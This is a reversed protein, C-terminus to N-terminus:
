IEKNTQIGDDSDKLIDKVMEGINSKTNVYSKSIKKRSSLVLEPSVFQIEYTQAGNAIESRLNVKHVFLPTQTFDIIDEKAKLSPTALKLTMSEQGIIPLKAIYNEIDVVIVSGTISSKFISEFINIEVIQMDTKLDTLKGTPSMIRCELLQFEGAFQVGDRSM